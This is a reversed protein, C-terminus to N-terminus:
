LIIVSDLPVKKVKNRWKYTRQRYNNGTLTRVGQTSPIRWSYFSHLKGTHLDQLVCLILPPFNEDFDPFWTHYKKIYKNVGTYVKLAAINPEAGTYLGHGEIGTIPRQEQDIFYIASAIRFSRM